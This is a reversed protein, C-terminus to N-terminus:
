FQELFRIKGSLFLRIDNIKYKLLAIRTLGFGFAFGSYVEPDIGGAKLVNPHILGGPFLEIWTSRKCVSCGEKCFPCRADIEFGPEVFPFFGPRIRIELDKKFLAKLFIKVTAFLNAVTVNKDILFGECQMFMFDHTADTAENRFAYGPCIAAIPLKKEQMARIQMPSTQTRMLYNPLNVWFTDQMDRAPHDKPVNLAVFNYFESELEPGDLVEYGMSIFIDEVEEIFSTLPHLSGKNVGTKYATFDFNQKKFNEAEIQEKLFQEEKSKLESEVRAKFGSLAPGILRKEDISLNKVESLLELIFGKKGLFSIRIKELDRVVKAATLEQDFQIGLSNIKDQLGAM